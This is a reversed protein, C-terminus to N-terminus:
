PAANAWALAQRAEDEGVDHLDQYHLGPAHFPRPKLLCIVDDAEDGYAVLSLHPAVPLAVIVRAPRWRRLSRLVSTMATDTAVGDDVVIVTAGEVGRLPDEPQTWAGTPLAERAGALNLAMGCAGGWTRIALGDDPAGLARAIPAAVAIGGRTLALVRLPRILRMSQLAAALALGAHTRDPFRWEARPAGARAPAAHHPAPGPPPLFPMAANM